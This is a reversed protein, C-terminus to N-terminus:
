CLIVYFYIQNTLVLRIICAHETVRDQGVRQLGLSQLGGAEETWPIEWALISSHFAMEKELPDEWGIKELRRCQCAAEKGTLWRLLGIKQITWDSLRPQSLQLVGPKETRWQKETQEFKHGSLWYHWGVMEAETKGKEEWRWDKGAEPDKGILWRKADHPWFIPAEAKANTRGIFIWLQDGKLSVSKIEKSDLPSELTKELM